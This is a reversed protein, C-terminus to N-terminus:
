RLDIPGNQAGRLIRIKNLIHKLLNGRLKLKM